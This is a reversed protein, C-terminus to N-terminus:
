STTLRWCRAWRTPRSRCSRNEDRLDPLCDRMRGRSRGSYCRFREPGRAPPAPDAQADDASLPRLPLAQFLDRGGAPRRLREVSGRRLIRRIRGEDGDDHEQGDHRLQVSGIGDLPTDDVDRVTVRDGAQVLAVLLVADADVADVRGLTALREACHSTVPHGGHRIALRGDDVAVAVDTRAAAPSRRSRPRRGPGCARRPPALTASRATCRRGVVRPQPSYPGLQGAHDTARHSSPAATPTASPHAPVSPAASAMVPRSGDGCTYANTAQRWIVCSSWVPSNM